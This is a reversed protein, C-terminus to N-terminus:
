PNLSELIVSLYDISIAGSVGLSNKSIADFLLGFAKNENITNPPLTGVSNLYLKSLESSTNGEPNLIFSAIGIVRDEDATKGLKIVPGGSNGPNLTLDVWAGDRALKTLVRENNVLAITDTWKTSLLGKSIFRQKIGRPYGCSYVEDGDNVDSWKGLRLFDFQTEPTVFPKLLIYDYAYSNAYGENLLKTMIGVEVKEGTQFEIYMKKLGKIQNTVSDRIFAPQMVHNCTLVWGDKTIFFGTGSPSNEILVRVVSKNLKIIRDSGLSQASCHLSYLFILILQFKVM